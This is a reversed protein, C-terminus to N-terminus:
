EGDPAGAGSTEAAYRPCPRPCRRGGRPIPDPPRSVRGPKTGPVLRGLRDQVETVHELMVRSAEDHDRRALAACIKQHSALNSRNTTADMELRAVVEQVM